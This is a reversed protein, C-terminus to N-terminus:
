KQGGNNEPSQREEPSCLVTWGQRNYTRQRNDAERALRRIKKDVIDVVVPSKKDPHERLIRGVAQVVNGIPTAMFLTDLEPIDVGEVAFAYTNGTIFLKGNRRAVWTGNGTRPCWILGHYKKRKRGDVSGSLGRSTVAHYKKDTLYVVYCGDDRRLINSRYGLRLALVTFWDITEKNKQIFRISKGGNCINGDGAIMANFLARAEEIPLSVLFKNLRKEPCWQKIM